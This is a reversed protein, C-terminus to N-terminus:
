PERVVGARVLAAVILEASSAPDSNASHIHVDPSEPPEYPSDIGTFNPLNGARAKLYLGKPDRAEAVDLSVDVYVELFRGQSMISRAFEREARFPSIFSVIVVIGADAMLKAVEAVRRINEVRDADTFGLDKNLGHRINDGDLIYTHVGLSALRREVLNAITSKGAGSLGTMWVVGSGHGMLVERAERNVEFQHWKINESRRLGFQIMGAAVTEFSERDIVIFSGMAKSDVYPDFVVSTDLDLHCVGISNLELTRAAVHELTAINWVFRPAEFSASVVKHGIKILYPRGPLMPSTSMWVISAQLRDASEPLDTASSLVDGRSLDVERDVTLTVARGAEAENIEGESTLISTVKFRDKRPVAVLEDGVKIIGAAITGAYGRFQSDPRVVRQLPMRSAMTLRRNSVNITELFEMLTPGNFWDLNPSKNALNDGGLASVPIETVSRMGIEDALLRYERVIDDFRSQSYGVLDMKNVVLVVHELNLLQVIFSHRRTQLRIGKSADVLILAVDSTSAGTVMNRTYQEHGPTDAVIFRRRQTAFFRYAVDITIGQEREAELGDVLLAFDIEDGQTGFRKSEERLQDVVDDYVLKGEYLLRGILTSKGDDVSGCTLFRLLGLDNESASGGSTVTSIVSNSM